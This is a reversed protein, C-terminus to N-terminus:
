NGAELKSRIESNGDTTDMYNTVGRVRGEGGLPSPIQDNRSQSDREGFPAENEPSPKSGRGQPLPSRRGNRGRSKRMEEGGSRPLPCLHPPRPLNMPLRWEKKARMPVMFRRLNTTSRKLATTTGNRWAQLDASFRKVVFSEREPRPEVIGLNMSLPITQRLQM